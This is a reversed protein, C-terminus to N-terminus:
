GNPTSAGRNHSILTPASGHRKVACSPGIRNFPGAASKAFSAFITEGLM